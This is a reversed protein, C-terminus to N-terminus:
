MSDFTMGDLFIQADDSALRDQARVDAAIDQSAEGVDDTPAGMLVLLLHALGASDGQLFHGRLGCGFPAVGDDAYVNVVLDDTLPHEHDGGATRRDFDASITAPQGEHYLSNAM